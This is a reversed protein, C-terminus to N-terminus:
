VCTSKLYKHQHRHGTMQFDWFINYHWHVLPGSKTPNHHHENIQSEWFLYDCPWQVLQVSKTPHHHHGTMQYEWFLFGCIWHVLHGYKTPHNRHVTIQFQGFFLWLTVAFLAWIRNNYWKSWHSCLFMVWLVPWFSGEGPFITDKNEFPRYFQGNQVTNWIVQM